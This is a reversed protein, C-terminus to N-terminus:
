AAKRRDQDGREVEVDEKRVQSSVTQQETGVTKRARVEERVHTEKEVVAEERRLPLYIDKGEFPKESAPRGSAPVREVQIEERQLDVPQQVTETRVIKRLRVGGAEVQRKGVRVQEEHLPIVTERGATTETRAATPQSATTQTAAPATQTRPQCAGKAQFYDLIQREQDERLEEDPSFHPANDIVDKPCPVRIRHARPNVEAGWAPIVHTRGFLRSTKIGIFAPQNHRDMWIATTDGIHQNNADYVEYTTVQEIDVQEPMEPVPQNTTSRLNEPTQNAM